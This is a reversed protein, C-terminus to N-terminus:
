PRVISKSVLPPSTSNGRYTLIVSANIERDGYYVEVLEWDYKTGASRGMQTYMEESLSRSRSNVPRGGVLRHVQDPTMGNEIRNYAELPLPLAESQLRREYAKMAGIQRAYDEISVETGESLTWVAVTGDPHGTAVAHGDHSIAASYTRIGEVSGVNAVLEGTRRDWVQVPEGILRVVALPCDTNRILEGDIMLPNDRRFWGDADDSTVEFDPLVKWTSTNWTRTTAKSDSSGQSTTVLKGDGSFGVIPRDGWKQGDGAELECVHEGTSTSFVHISRPVDGCEQFPVVVFGTKTFCANNALYKPPGFLEDPTPHTIKLVAGSDLSWDVLRLDDEIALLVRSDNASVVLSPALLDYHLGEVSVHGKRIPEEGSIDWVKLSTSSGLSSASVLMDGETALCAVHRGDGSLEIMSRVGDTRWLDSNRVLLYLGNNSFSLNHVAYTTDFTVVPNDIVRIKPDHAPEVSRPQEIVPPESSYPQAPSAAATASDLNNHQKISALTILVSCAALAFIACPLWVKAKTLQGIITREPTPLPSPPLSQRDTQKDVAFLGAISGARIQKPPDDLLVTDNPLVKQALALERLQHSTFPGAKVGNKLLYWKKPM